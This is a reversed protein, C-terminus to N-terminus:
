LIFQLGKLHILGELAKGNISIPNLIPKQALIEKCSYIASLAVTTGRILNTHEMSIVFQLVFSVFM